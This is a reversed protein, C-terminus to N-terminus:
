YNFLDSRSHKKDASQNLARLIKSQVNATLRRGKCARAVMKFTLHETSAAVLDGPKLNHAAMLQVLPQEGLNRELDSETEPPKKM